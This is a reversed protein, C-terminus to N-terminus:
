RVCGEGVRKLAGVLRKKQEERSLITMGDYRAEMKRVAERNISGNALADFLEEIHSGDYYFCKDALIEDIQFDRSAACAKRFGKILTSSGTIKYRNYVACDRVSSDVLFLVIDVTRLVRFMEEFSVFEEYHRVV